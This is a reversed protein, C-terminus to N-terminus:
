GSPDPRGRRSPRPPSGAVQLGLEPLHGPYREVHLRNLVQRDLIADAARLVLVRELARARLLEVDPGSVQQIAQLVLRLEAIERRVALVARM